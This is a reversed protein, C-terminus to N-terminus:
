KTEEVWEYDEMFAKWNAYVDTNALVVFGHETVPAGFDKHFTTIHGYEKHKFKAYRRSVAQYHKM